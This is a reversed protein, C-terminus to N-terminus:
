TEPLQAIAENTAQYLEQLLRSLKVNVKRIKEQNMYIKHGASPTIALDNLSGMGGFSSRTRSLHKQLDQSNEGSADLEILWQKLIPSWREEGHDSLFRALSKMSRKYGIPSTFMGM